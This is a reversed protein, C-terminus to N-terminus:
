QRTLTYNTNSFGSGNYTGTITNGSLTGTYNLPQVGPTTLILSVSPHSYTGTVTMAFSDGPGSLSGSGSVATGTVTLTLTTNIGESSGTWVGAVTPKPGTSDGSCGALTLVLVLMTVLSRRVM